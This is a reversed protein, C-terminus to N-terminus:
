SGRTPALCQSSFFDTKSYTILRTGREKRDSAYYLFSNNLKILTTNKNYIKCM